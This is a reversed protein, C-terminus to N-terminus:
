QLLLLSRVEDGLEVTAVCDLFDEIEVDLLFVLDLRQEDGDGNKVAKQGNEARLGRPSLRNQVPIGQFEQGFDRRETPARPAGSTRFLTFIAM